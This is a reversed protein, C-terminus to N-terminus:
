FVAGTNRTASLFGSEVKEAVDLGFDDDVIRVEGFRELRKGM